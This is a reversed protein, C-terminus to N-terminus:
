DIMEQENTRLIKSIWQQMREESTNKGMEKRGEKRGEKM